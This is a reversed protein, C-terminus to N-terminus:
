EKAVAQPIFIKDFCQPLLYLAEIKSLFIITSTNSVVNMRM